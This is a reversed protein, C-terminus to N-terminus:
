LNGRSSRRSIVKGQDDSSHSFGTLEVDSNTSMRTRDVSLYSGGDLGRPGFVHSINTDSGLESTTSTRNKRDRDRGQERGGDRRTNYGTHIHGGAFPARRSGTGNLTENSGDNMREMLSRKWKEADMGARFKFLLIRLSPMCTAFFAMLCEVQGLLEYTEVPEGDVLTNREDEIINNLIGYRILATAITLVGLLFLLALGSKERTHLLGPRRILTIPIVM